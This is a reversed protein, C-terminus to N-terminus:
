RASSAYREGAKQWFAAERRYMTYLAGGRVAIASYGEGLAREWLKRPGGAPWWDAIPDAAEVQFDRNRGGWLTWDAADTPAGILASVLAALIRAVM